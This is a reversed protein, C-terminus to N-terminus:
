EPVPNQIVTNEAERPSDNEFQVPEEINELYAGCNKCFKDKPVERGCDPCIVM